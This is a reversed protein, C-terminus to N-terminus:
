ISHGRNQRGRTDKVQTGSHSEPYYEVTDESQIGEKM